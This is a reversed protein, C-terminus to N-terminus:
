LAPRERAALSADPVLPGDTGAHGRVRNFLHSQGVPGPINLRHDVFEGGM